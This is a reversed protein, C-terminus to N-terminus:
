TVSRSANNIPGKVSSSARDVMRASNNAAYVAAASEKSDFSERNSM